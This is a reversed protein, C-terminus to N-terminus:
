ERWVKKWLEKLNVEFPCETQFVFSEEEGDFVKEFKSVKLLFVRMKRLDPYVLAYYSVGEREYLKFKVEEDKFATSQSVIEFVVSPTTKLHKEIRKCVVILDPRVVTHEDIIWDLEQYAYCRKPCEELQEEILRALSLSVRQHIGFPSPALAYPIGEILEWDGKWRQYDQVTYRPLPKELAGM